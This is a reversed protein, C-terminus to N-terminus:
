QAGASRAQLPRVRESRWSLYGEVFGKLRSWAVKGNYLKPQAALVLVDIVLEGTAVHVAALVDAASRRRKAYSRGLGFAARWTQFAHAHRAESSMHHELHLDGSVILRWSLGVDMSFDRDEVIMKEDYRLGEIAERRFIQCFGPLWKVERCGSFPQLFALTVSRGLHNSDGPVLSPTIGLLKRLKWRAPVPTNYNRRDYATLGGTTRHEPLELIKVADRVFDPPISVDDDLFIIYDGQARSIGVNRAAALGKPAGLFRVQVPGESPLDPAPEGDRGVVLVELHPYSQARLSQVLPLFVELRRITCIIVSVLPM